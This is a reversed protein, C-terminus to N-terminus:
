EEFLWRKGSNDFKRWNKVVIYNHLGSTYDRTMSVENNVQMIEDRLEAKNRDALSEEFEIRQNLDNIRQELQGSFQDEAATQNWCREM